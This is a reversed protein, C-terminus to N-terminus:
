GATRAHTAVPHGAAGFIVVSRADFCNFDAACRICCALSCSSFASRSPGRFLLTFGDLFELLRLGLELPHQPLKAFFLHFARERHKSGAELLHEFRLDFDLSPV